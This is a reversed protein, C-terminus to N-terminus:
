IFRPPPLDIKRPISIIKQDITGFVTGPSVWCTTYSPHEENILDFQYYYVKLLSKNTEQNTTKCTFIDQQGYKAEVILELATETPDMGTVTSFQYANTDVFFATNGVSLNLLQLALLGVIFQRFFHRAKQM